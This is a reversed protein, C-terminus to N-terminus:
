VAKPLTFRFTTGLGEKSEVWIKGSHREIIQKAISLGLGTGDKEVERANSARYFEDFIRSLEEEPIGIGSDAIEVLVNDDHNKARVEVNGDSSTYKVANFLLNTIVEEISFQNGYIKEIDEEINSSLTISKDEAKSRVAALSNQLSETLSFVDMEINNNALRMETLRLLIKVFQILKKTRVHARGAFEAQRGKLDGVYGKVLVEQCSQIAALHGKIDHTLRAVYEDKIHDKQKLQENAKRTAQEQKKLQTTIFSTMYVVFYLTVALAIISGMIYTGNLHLNRGTNGTISYHPIIQKYEFILLFSLLLVSLTAHLYSERVSLLISAIVMHFVFFLVFPNEIGGSYHLLATLALLDISIQVDILLKIMGTRQTDLWVIYKIIALMVLNYCALFAAIYYIADQRILIGFVDHAAFAAAIVGIIALWRLNILWYVKNELQNYGRKLKM